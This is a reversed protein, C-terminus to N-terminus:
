KRLVLQAQKNNIEYSSFADLFNKGLLPDTGVDGVAATLNTVTVNGIKLRKILVIPMTVKRGEAMVFTKRRLEQADLAKALDRPIFSTSAGTDLMWHVTFRGDVQGDLMISGGQRRIPVTWTNAQPTPKQYSALGYCDLSDIGKVAECYNGQAMVPSAFAKSAMFLALLIKSVRTIPENIIMAAAM